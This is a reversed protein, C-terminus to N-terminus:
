PNVCPLGNDAAWSEAFSGPAATVTLDPSCLAFAGEGIDTVSEPISVSGLLSCESFAYEGISVLSEPLVMGTLALCRNFSSEGIVTVTSPLAISPLDFCSDFAREEITHLGEPLSVQRLDDCLYFARHPIIGIGEPINIERLLDCSEFAHPCITSVTKPLVIKEFHGNRSFASQGIVQTGKKVRFTKKEMGGPVCLLTKSEKHYLAGGKVEFVPNGRAVTLKKLAECDNFPNVGMSELSRPLTAETLADYCFAEDGIHLLGEPLAIEALRFCSAFAYNGIERLTTPLSVNELAFCRRFADEGIRIVGEPFTAATLKELGAFAKAGIATVPHGDVQAPIFLEAPDGECGTIEVTGDPLLVYTFQVPGSVPPEPQTEQIDQAAACLPLLVLVLLYALYKRTANM